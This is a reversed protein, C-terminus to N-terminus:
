LPCICARTRYAPMIRCFTSVSHRFLRVRRPGRHHQSSVLVTHPIIVQIDGLPSSRHTTQVGDIVESVAWVPSIDYEPVSVSIDADSEVLRCQDAQAEPRVSDGVASSVIHDSINLEGTQEITHAILPKGGVERINKNPVRKSGGRAPIIGLIKELM